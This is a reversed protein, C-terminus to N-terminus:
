GSSPTTIRSKLESLNANFEALWSRTEDSITENVARVFSEIVDLMNQADATSPEGTDLSAMWRVRELQFSALQARISIATAMYRLWASSYGAFRDYALSGAALGILVFGWNGLAARGATLAALPVAGGLTVLILALMRLSRSWRAKRRKEGLYWEISERALGEAWDCLEILGERRKGWTIEPLRPSALDPDREAGSGAVM